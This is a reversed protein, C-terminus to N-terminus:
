KLVEPDDAQCWPQDLAAVYPKLVTADAHNFHDTARDDTDTTATHGSASKRNPPTWGTSSAWAPVTIEAAQMQAQGVTQIQNIWISIHLMIIKVILLFLKILLLFHRNSSSIDSKFLFFVFFLLKKQKGRSANKEMGVFTDDFNNSSSRHFLLTM